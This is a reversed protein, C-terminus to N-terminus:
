KYPAYVEGGLALDPDNTITIRITKKADNKYIDPLDYQIFIDDAILRARKTESNNMGYETGNVVLSKLYYLDGFISQSSNNREIQVYHDSPNLDKADLDYWADDFLDNLKIERVAMRLHRKSDENKKYFYQMANKVEQDDGLKLELVEVNKQM